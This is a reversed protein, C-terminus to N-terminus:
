SAAIYKFLHASNQGRTTELLRQAPFHAFLEAERELTASRSLPRSELALTGLAGGAAREAPRM